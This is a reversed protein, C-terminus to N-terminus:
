NVRNQEPRTQAKKENLQKLIQRQHMKALVATTLGLIVVIIGWVRVITKLLRNTAELTM